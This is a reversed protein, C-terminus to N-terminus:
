EGSSLSTWAFSLIAIIILIIFYMPSLIGSFQEILTAFGLTVLSSALLSTEFRIRGSFRFQMFLSSILVVLFFSVVIFLGFLNQTVQNSYQFFYMINTNNNGSFNMVPYPASAFVYNLSILVGIIMYLLIIKLKM